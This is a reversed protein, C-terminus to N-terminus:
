WMGHEPHHIRGGPRRFILAALRVKEYHSPLGGAIIRESREGPNGGGERRL